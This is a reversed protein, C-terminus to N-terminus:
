GGGTTTGGTSITLVVTSGPLAVDGPSVEVVINPAAGSKDTSRVVVNFGQLAATAETVNMGVLGRPIQSAPQGQVYNPDTQGFDQDPLKDHLVKMATMWTDAPGAGGSMGKGTGEPKGHAEDGSCMRTPEKCIPQPKPLYDWMMVAGSYLPTYGLFAASKYDQTTGTKGAAVHTWGAKQAAAHSTGDPDTVDGKMAQALTQALEAKVVQECPITKFNILKQDPGEIRDVPSPPCWEGGSALTAGVNSLELPSVPSVGLTFSAIKQRVVEDAYSQGSGAFQPAVDGADLSYGRLGLKVAMDTVKQLSINDELAVFTTNPSTALAKAMTLKPPFTGSNNFAHTPSLPSYYPAKTDLEPQETGLGADLAAAATFVKFTSGAGLPAFTTTLRQVTQGKKPDLGYPRNAALAVVRRASGPQVIAMVNAVRNAKPDGPSASADVATKADKMADPDLNTHVVYGGTALKGNDLGSNKLFDLVYQCYYGNTSSGSAEGCGNKPRVTKLMAPANKAQNAVRQSIAKAFVMADLVQNRRTMAQNFHDLDTLPNYKNPSNIMAALLAAQPLQLDKAHIGFFRQSAAEAGYTSPGFAVLNLYRELIDNKSYKQELQLALKAERLKRIPTQEIATAKEADTKAKVLFMYNKVYQQTLTSGGSQTSGSGNKLLARITGAYDFGNHSRFRRDEMSIVARVLLDSIESLPVVQRNQQFITTLVNGKADQVTTLQPVPDNFDDSKVDAIASTVQNSALGIGVFAPLMLGAVLVGALLTAVLLRGIGSM